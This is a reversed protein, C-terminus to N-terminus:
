YGLRSKALNKVYCFYVGGIILVIFPLYVVLEGVGELAPGRDLLYLLPM